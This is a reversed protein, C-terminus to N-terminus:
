ISPLEAESAIIIHARKAFPPIRWIRLLFSLQTDSNQVACTCSYLLQRLM